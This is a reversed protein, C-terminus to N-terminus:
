ESWVLIRRYGGDSVYLKKNCIVIGSVLGIGGWIERDEFKGIFGIQQMFHGDITFIQISYEDGIYLLESEKSLFFKNLIGNQAV